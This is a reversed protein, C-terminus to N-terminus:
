LAGCVRCDPNREVEIVECRMEEGDFFLMRGVLPRGLGTVLKFAEMAQLAAFLAPTSGLVPFREVEPPNEPFICRLCPGEGPMITTMQGYLARVGAHIFPKRHRVCHTNVLFRTWWNDLGDIVLNAEGLVEDVNEETLKVILAEVEVDPNLAMLKERAAEAKLRGIDRHWGHIQRNLNSLEYRSDDILLIRGFGAAALYLSSPCGLGGVGVVAACTSKLKLQGEVGIGPIIIQRDYRELEDRTLRM